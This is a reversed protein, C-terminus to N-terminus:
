SACTRWSACRQVAPPSEWQPGRIDLSTLQSFRPLAQVVEPELTPPGSLALELLGAPALRSLFAPLHPLGAAPNTPSPAATSSGGLGFATGYAFAAVLPAVRQLRALRCDFWRPWDGAPLSQLQSLPPSFSRWNAPESYVLARWRKCM